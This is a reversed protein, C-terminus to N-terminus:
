VEASSNEAIGEENIEMIPELTQSVVSRMSQQADRSPQASSEEAYDDEDVELLTAVEDATIGCENKADEEELVQESFLDEAKPSAVNSFNVLKPQWKPTRDELVGDWIRECNFSCYVQEWYKDNGLRNRTPPM